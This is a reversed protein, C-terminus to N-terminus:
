RSYRANLKRRIYATAERAPVKVKSKDAGFLDIGLEYASAAGQGSKVREIEARLARRAFESKTLGTQKALAEVESELAPDMKIVLM